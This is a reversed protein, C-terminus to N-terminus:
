VEGLDSDRARTFVEERETPQPRKRQTEEPPAAEKEADRLAAGKEAHPGKRQTKRQPRKRQTGRERRRVMGGVWEQLGRSAWEPLPLVYSAWTQVLGGKHERETRETLDVM